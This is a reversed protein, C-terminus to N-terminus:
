VQQQKRIGGDGGKMDTDSEQSMSDRGHLVQPTKQGGHKPPRVQVVIEEEWIGCCLQHQNHLACATHGQELPVGKM